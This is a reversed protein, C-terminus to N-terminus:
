IFIKKIRRVSNEDILGQEFAFILMEILVDIPVEPSRLSIRGRRDPYAWKVSQDTESWSSTGIRIEGISYQKTITTKMSGSWM